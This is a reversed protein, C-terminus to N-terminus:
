VVSKRDPLNKVVSGSPFDLYDMCHYKFSFKSISHPEITPIQWFDSLFDACLTRSNCLAM